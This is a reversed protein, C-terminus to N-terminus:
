SHRHTKVADTERKDPEESLRGQTGLYSPHQSASHSWASDWRGGDVCEREGKREGKREWTYNGETYKGNTEMLELSEKRQFGNETQTGFPVM